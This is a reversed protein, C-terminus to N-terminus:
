LNTKRETKTKYKRKELHHLDPVNVYFHGKKILPQTVWIFEVQM